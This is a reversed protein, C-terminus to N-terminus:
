GAKAKQRPLFVALSAPDYAPGPCTFGLPVNFQHFMPGVVHDCLLPGAFANPTNWFFAFFAQDGEPDAHSLFNAGQWESRPLAKGHRGNFAADVRARFHDGRLGGTTTSLHRNRASSDPPM